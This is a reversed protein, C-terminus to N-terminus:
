EEAKGEESEALAERVEALKRKAEPLPRIETYVPLLRVANALASEARVLDGRAEFALGLVYWAFADDPDSDLVAELEAIAEDYKKQGM